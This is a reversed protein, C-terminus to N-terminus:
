KLSTQISPRVYPRIALTLKLDWGLITFKYNNLFLEFQLKLKIKTNEPAIRLNVISHKHTIIERAVIFM